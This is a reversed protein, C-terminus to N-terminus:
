PRVGVSSDNVLPNGNWQNYVPANVPFTRSEFGDPGIFRFGYDNVEPAYWGKSAFLGSGDVAMRELTDGDSLRVLHVVKTQTPDVSGSFQPTTPSPRRVVVNGMLGGYHLSTRLADSPRRNITTLTYQEVDIVILAM